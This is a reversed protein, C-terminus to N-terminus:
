RTGIILGYANLIVNADMEKINKRTTASSVTLYVLMKSRLFADFIQM